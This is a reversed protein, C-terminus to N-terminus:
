PGAPAGRGLLEQIFEQLRPDQPSSLRLMRTWSLAVLGSIGPRRGLIVADGASALAPTFAGAIAALGAPPQESGYLIVINGAALATLIQDDSLRQDDAAVGESVHPGSTPPDSDYPPNPYGRALKGDGQDAYRLGVGGVGTVAATDHGAFYGSLLAILVTALAISAIAIAIRELWVLRM